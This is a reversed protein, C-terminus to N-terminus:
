IGALEAIAVRRAHEVEPETYIRRRKAKRLANVSTTHDKRGFVAAVESLTAGTTWRYLYMATHRVRSLAKHQGSGTIRSADCGHHKAAAAILAAGIAWREERKKIAPEHYARSEPPIPMPEERQVVPVRPAQPVPKPTPAVEGMVEPMVEPLPRYRSRLQARMRADLQEALSM